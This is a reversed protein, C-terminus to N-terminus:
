PLGLWDGGEKTAKRPEETDVERPQPICMRKFTVPYLYRYLQVALITVDIVILGMILVVISLDITQLAEITGKHRQFMDMFEKFENDDVVYPM